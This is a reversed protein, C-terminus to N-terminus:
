ELDWSWGLQLGKRSYGARAPTGRPRASFFSLNKKPPLNPYGVQGKAYFIDTSLKVFEFVYSYKNSFSLNEHSRPFVGRKAKYFKKKKKKVYRINQLALCLLIQYVPGTGPEKTAFDTSLLRLICQIFAPM